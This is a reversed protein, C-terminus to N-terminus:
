EDPAGPVSPPPPSARGNRTTAGHNARSDLRRGVGRRGSTAPDDYARRSESRCRAKDGGAVFANIARRDKEQIGSFRVGATTPSHLRAVEAETVIEENCGPLFFRLTLPQDSEFPRDTEVLMGSESINHSFAVCLESQSEAHLEVRVLLRATRRAAVTALRDVTQVLTMEDIPHVLTENAGAIRVRNARAEEGADGVFLISVDRAARNSRVECCLKVATADPLDPGVVLLAPRWAGVADIVASARALTVVSFGTQRLLNASWTDGAVVITDPEFAGIAGVQRPAMSTLAKVREGFAGADGTKEIVADVELAAARAELKTRTQRSFLAVVAPHSGLGDRVQRVVDEGLGPLDPDVLVLDPKESTVTAAIEDAATVGRVQAHGALAAAVWHVIVLSEDVILIKTLGV